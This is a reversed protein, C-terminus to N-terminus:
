PVWRRPSSTYWRSLTENMAMVRRAGCGFDFSSRPPGSMILTAMSQCYAM